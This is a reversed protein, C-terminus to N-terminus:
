HGGNNVLIAGKHGNESSITILAQSNNLFNRNLLHSYYAISTIVFSTGVEGFSEIPAIANSETLSPFHSLFQSLTFGWYYAKWEDGNIDTFLTTPISNEQTQSKTLISKACNSLAHGIPPADDFRTYRESGKIYQSISLQNDSNPQSSKSLCMFAAAEGPTIGVPNENHVLMQLMSMSELTEPAILSDVSGIICQDWANKQFNEQAIQLAEIIGISGQYLSFTNAEPINLGADSILDMTLSQTKIRFEDLPPTPRGKETLNLGLHEVRQFSAYDKELDEKQLEYIANTTSCDSLLLIFGTKQGQINSKLDKRMDHLAYKALQYLRSYGMSHETIVPVMHCAIDDKGWADNLVPNIYPHPLTRTMGAWASSISTEKTLGLSTVLGCASIHLSEPTQM